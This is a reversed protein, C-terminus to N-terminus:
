SQCRLSSSAFSPYYIDGGGERGWGGGGGGGMEEGGCESRWQGKGVTCTPDQNVIEGICYKCQARTSCRSPNEAQISKASVAHEKSHCIWSHGVCLFSPSTAM